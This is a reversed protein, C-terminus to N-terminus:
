QSELVGAVYARCRTTYERSLRSLCVALGVGLLILVARPWFNQQLWELVQCPRGLAPIALAALLATCANGAAERLILLRSIQEIEAEKAVRQFKARQRYWEPLDRFEDALRIWQGLGQIGLGLPWSLGVLVAWKWPGLPELVKLAPDLSPFTAVLSYLVVLGPLIKGLVDALLFRSYLADILRSVADM